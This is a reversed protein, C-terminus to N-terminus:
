GYELDWFQDPEHGLIQGALIDEMTYCCALAPCVLELRKEPSVDDQLSGVWSWLGQSEIPM